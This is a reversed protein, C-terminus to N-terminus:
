NQFLPYFTVYMDLSTAKTTTETVSATTTTTEASTIRKFASGAKAAEENVTLLIDQRGLKCSIFNPAANRRFSSAFPTPDRSVLSRHFLVKGRFAIYIIKALPSSEDGVISTLSAGSM